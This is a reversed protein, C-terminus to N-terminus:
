GARRVGRRAASGRGTIGAGAILPATGHGAGGAPPARAPDQAAWGACGPLLLGFHVAGIGEDAGVLQQPQLCGTRRRPQEVDAPGQRLGIAPVVEGGAVNGARDVDVEVGFEGVVRVRLGRGASVRQRAGFLELVGDAGPGDGVVGLDDDIVVVGGEAGRT